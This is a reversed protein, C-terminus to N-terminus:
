QNASIAQAKQINEPRANKYRDLANQLKEYAEKASDPKLPNKEQQDQIRDFFKGNPYLRYQKDQVFVSEEGSKRQGLYWTYSWDRVATNDRGLLQPYFSIGDFPIEKPLFIGAAESITSLIDTSDTLNTNVIGPKITGPFSVILPVHMGSDNLLGKGGQYSQGKFRTIIDRGTGNDGLFIILTKKTLGLDEVKKVIRGVNLDVYQTMEKFHKPNTYQEGIRKADWDPSDPTPQFPAHTLVMPYYLFFPKDKNDEIFKMAHGAILEPGYEGNTYDIEKGQDELGPNAYRPPRRTHQWLYYTDFGFHRPLDLDHGLQWKGFIGTVYGADHFFNGFTKQSRHLQGFVTYNRVNYLGTMLQVRTPTCLPQVYFQEFRVGNEALRDINPTKYDEGGNAAICEYGFDDALILIINPRESKKATDDAGYSQFVFAFSVMVVFSLVFLKKM